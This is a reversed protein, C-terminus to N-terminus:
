PKTILKTYPERMSSAKNPNTDGITCPTTDTLTRSSPPTREACHSVDGKHEVHDYNERLRSRASYM